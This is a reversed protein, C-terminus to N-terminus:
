PNNATQEAAFAFTATSSAGQFTNATSLPLGVRVCLVDSSGARLSRDGANAGQVASGVAAGNLATAALVTTGSFAACGGGSDTTKITLQLQAGLPNTATVALAYRLDGTGANTVTLVQTSSDGPLMGSVTTFITPSTNVNITGTTFAWTSSANDSFQALSLSGAGITMIAFAVLLAFVGGRRWSRVANGAALTPEMDM